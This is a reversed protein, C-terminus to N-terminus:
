AMEILLQGKDVAAGKDVSISSVTGDAAAVLSNEMKMAELVLLRTGAAVEQGPEVLVDVVLGPMPAFVDNQGSEDVVNLGLQEVLADVEDGVAFTFPQGNVEVSVSRGPADVSVVDCHYSKGHRLLHFAGDGASVVNLADIAEAPCDHTADGHRLTLNPM